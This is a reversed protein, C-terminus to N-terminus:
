NRRQRDLLPIRKRKRGIVLGNPDCEEVEEYELGLALRYLAYEAMDALFFKECPDNIMSELAPNDAIEKSLEAKSFVDNVTHIFLEGDIKIFSPTILKRKLLRYIEAIRAIL